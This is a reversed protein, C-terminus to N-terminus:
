VTRPDPPSLEQEGPKGVMDPQKQTTTHTVIAQSMPTGTLRHADHGNIEEASKNLADELEDDGVADMTHKLNLDKPAKLGYIDGLAETASLQIPNDAVEALAGNVNIEKEAETLGIMKEIYSKVPFGQEEMEKIAVDRYAKKQETRLVTRVGIGMVEATKRVSLGEDKRYHFVALDRANLEPGCYYRKFPTNENM